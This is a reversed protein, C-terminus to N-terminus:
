FGEPHTPPPAITEHLPLRISCLSITWNIARDSSVAWSPADIVDCTAEPVRLAGISEPTAGTRTLEV